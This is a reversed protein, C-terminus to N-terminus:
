RVFLARGSEDVEAESFDAGQSCRMSRAPDGRRDLVDAAGHEFSM